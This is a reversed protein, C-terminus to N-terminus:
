MSIEIITKLHSTANQSIGTLAVSSFIHLNYSKIKSKLLLNVRIYPGLKFNKSNILTSNLKNQADNKQIQSLSYKNYEFTRYNQM